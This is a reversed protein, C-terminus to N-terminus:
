AGTKKFFKINSNTNFILLQDSYYCWFVFKGYFISIKIELLKEARNCNQQVGSLDDSIRVSLKWNHKLKKVFLFQTYRLSVTQCWGKTDVIIEQPNIESCKFDREWLWTRVSFYYFTREALVLLCFMNCKLKLRVVLFNHNQCFRITHNFLLRIIHLRDGYIRPGFYLVSSDFMKDFCCCNSHAIMM